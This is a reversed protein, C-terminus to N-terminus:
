RQCGGPSDQEHRLGPGDGLLPPAQRRTTPLLHVDLEQLRTLDLQALLQPLNFPGLSGGASTDGRTEVDQAQLIFSHKLHALAVDGLHHGCPRADGDLANACALRLAQQTELGLEPTADDALFIGYRADGLRQAPGSRTQAVRLPWDCTEQETARCADALGLKALREGGAVETGLIRHYAQIHAFEHLLVCDGLEDASWRSVNPKTLAAGEGFSNAPPRVRQNKEIFNLLGVWIHEIHEQLQKVVAPKCISTTLGYGKGIRHDDHRGVNTASLNLLTDEPSGPKAEPRGRPLILFLITRKMAFNAFKHHLLQLSQEPRLEQVANVLDDDEAGQVPAVHPRDCLHLEPLDLAAQPNPAESKPQRIGELLTHESVAEVGGVAGPGQAPGDRPQQLIRKRVVQERADGGGFLVVAKREGASAFAVVIGGCWAFIGVCLFCIGVTPASDRLGQNDIEVHCLTFDDHPSISCKTNVNSLILNDFVLRALSM